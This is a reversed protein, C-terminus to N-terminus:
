IVACLVPNSSHKGDILRRDGNILAQISFSKPASFEFDTGGRRADGGRNLTAGGPMRGEVLAAFAQRDVPGSLGLARVTGNAPVTRLGPPNVVGPVM